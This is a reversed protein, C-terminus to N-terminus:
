DPLNCNVKVLAECYNHSPNSQARVDWSSDERVIIVHDNSVNVGKHHHCDDSNQFGFPPEKMM